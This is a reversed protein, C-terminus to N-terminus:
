KLTPVVSYDLNAAIDVPQRNPSLILLRSTWLQLLEEELAPTDQDDLLLHEETLQQLTERGRSHQLLRFAAESVKRREDNYTNGIYCSVDGDTETVSLTVFAPMRPYLQKIKHASASKKRVIFDGIVLANLESTLFCVIAEEPTDVMPEVNSNFSTNLLVPIGTIDGFARILRYYRAASSENVTQLRATGDVHTVAGLIRRYENRVRLIVGMFPYATKEDPLEFISGVADQLVSPAFPRFGERNKICRNIREKNEAPRPDALISRNGLARPGFEAAGQFWGIIDGAAIMAAAEEIVNEAHHFCVLDSWSELVTRCVDETPCLRGLYVHDMRQRPADPMLQFWVDLAAGLPLGGDHSAPQVFIEAFQRAYALKGTMTCNLAVGGALCLNSSPVLSGYYATLHFVIIEIAEQLAAAIDQHDSTIPEGKKRSPLLTDISDLLQQQICYSGKEGLQYLQNFVARFKEPRGYPALGMVKYEDFLDFGLLRTIALYFHGISDKELFSVIKNLTNGKGEYVAGSLNDGSGDLSIVLGDDFGSFYYASAAHARHHNMFHVKEPAVAYGFYRSFFASLFARASKHNFAPSITNYHRIAMDFLWEETPIAIADLQDATIGARALCAGIAFVPLKNTHKIRNLREEEFAAILKGNCFLVAAADHSEGYQIGFPNQDLWSIGGNIGLIYM